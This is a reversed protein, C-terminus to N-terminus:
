TTYLRQQILTISPRIIAHLWLRFMYGHIFNIFVQTIHSQNLNCTISGAVPCWFIFVTIKRRRWVLEYTASGNWHNLGGSIFEDFKARQLWSWWLIPIKLIVYSFGDSFDLKFADIFSVVGEFVWRSGNFRGVSVLRYVQIEVRQGTDPQLLYWCFGPGEMSPSKIQGFTKGSRAALYRSDITINCM